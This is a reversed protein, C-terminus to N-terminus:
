LGTYTVTFTISGTYAGPAATSPAALSGGLWIYRTGATYSTGGLGISNGSTFSTGGQTTNTTWETTPAFTLSGSVSGALTATSPYTVTISQGGDGTVSFYVARGDSHVNISTDAAGVAGKVIVNNADGFLLSKSPSGVILGQVVNAGITVDQTASKQAYSLSTLTLIIAALIALQKMIKRRIPNEKPGGFWRFVSLSAMADREHECGMRGITNEVDQSM